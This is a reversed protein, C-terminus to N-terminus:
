PQRTAVDPPPTQRRLALWLGRTLLPLLFVLLFYASSYRYGHAILDVLGIRAAVGVSLAMAVFAVAPRLGDPMASGRDRYGRAIRENLGHLLGAGTKIMAGLIVLKVFAGLLPTHLQHLVVTVPLPADLVQARFAALVLLFAFGPLLILPGALAGSWLAERRSRFNRAVFILVPLVAINYGTYSTGERLAVGLDAPSAALEASLAASHHMIVTVFLAGYTAYFLLSWWSIVREVIRNGFFVLMAVVAMFAVANPLEPTGLVEAVLKAAAASVISLVLVLSAVYGLEFLVAFRGMYAQCFSRYDFAQYRRAVEFATATGISFLLATWALGLLGTAAGHALFFEVLERGSAYGGGVIVAQVVLGPVLYRELWQKMQM